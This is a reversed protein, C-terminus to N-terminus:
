ALRWGDLHLHVADQISAGLWVMLVDTPTLLPPWMFALWWFSYVLRIATAIGPCHTWFSRHKFMKGYPLYYLQFLAGLLRNIRYMRNEDHTRMQGLDLDPTALYGFVAGAVLGVDGAYIGYGSAACVVAGAYRAHIKGSAM